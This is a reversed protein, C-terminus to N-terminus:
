HQSREVAESAEIWRQEAAGLVASSMVAVTLILDGRKL